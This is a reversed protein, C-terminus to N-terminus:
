RRKPKVIKRKPRFRRDEYRLLDLSIKMERSAISTALDLPESTALAAIDAERCPNGTGLQALAANVEAAKALRWTPEDFTSRRLSLGEAKVPKLSEALGARMRKARSFDRSRRKEATLGRAAGTENATLKVLKALFKQASTTVTDRRHKIISSIASEAFTITRMAIIIQRRRPSSIAEWAEKAVGLAALRDRVYGHGQIFVANGEPDQSLYDPELDTWRGPEGPGPKGMVVYPAVDDVIRFLDLAGGPESIIGPRSQADLGARGSRVVTVKRGVYREPPPYPSPPKM